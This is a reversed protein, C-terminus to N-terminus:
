TSRLELLIPMNPKMSFKYYSLTTTKIYWPNTALLNRKVPIKTPNFNLKDTDKERLISGCNTM